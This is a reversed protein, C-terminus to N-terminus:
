VNVSALRDAVTMRESRLADMKKGFNLIISETAINYYKMQAEALKEANAMVVHLQPVRGLIVSEVEDSNVVELGPKEVNLRVPTGNEVGTFVLSFQGDKDSTVAKAFPARISADSVYQRHGTEYESNQIIVSGPLSISQGVVITFGHLLTATSWFRM